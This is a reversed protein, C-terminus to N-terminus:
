TLIMLYSCLMKGLHLEPWPTTISLADALMSLFINYKSIQRHCYHYSLLLIWPSQSVHLSLNLFTVKVGFYCKVQKKVHRQTQLSKCLTFLRDGSQTTKSKRGGKPRDAVITLNIRLIRNLRKEGGPYLQAKALVHLSANQSSPEKWWHLKAARRKRPFRKPGISNIPTTEWWISFSVLMRIKVTRPRQPDPEQSIEPRM